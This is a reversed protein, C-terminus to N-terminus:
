APSSAIPFGFNLWLFFLFVVLLFVSCVAAVIPRPEKDGGTILSTGGYVTGFFLLPLDLVTLLTTEQLVVLFLVVVGLGYFLLASAHKIAQFM